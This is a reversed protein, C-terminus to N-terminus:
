EQVLINDLEWTAGDANTGTYEFAIYANGGTYASLDVNGSSVFNWDGSDTDWTPVSATIDVWTGQVTPDSVGDYDTSIFLKLGAGTYRTVNDFTLIPAVASSFDMTPSVMWSDCAYNTFTGIDFNSASAVNGGFIEWEGWNKTTTTGTWHISWGGSTLVGDDFDKSAYVTPQCTPNPLNVDSTRRLYLQKTGNYEGVIAVVTGNGGPVLDAAFSAYGSTRVIVPTGNCDVLTRDISQQNVADAYPQGVDTNLFEVNSLQVLRSQLDPNAIVDDVTAAVPTVTVNTAQKVINLDVDVSDLQLVGNYESLITGNLNIRISDGEYLGGSNKLRVNLGSSGDTVYVNKYLNGSVEDATVVCYVNTDGDIFHIPTGTYMNRLDTVTIFNGSPIENSPPQDYEKKCSQLTLATIAVIGLLIKQAKNM